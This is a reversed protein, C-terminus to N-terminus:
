NVRNDLIEYGLDPKDTIIGDIRMKLLTRIHEPENVTWTIIKRGKRHQDVVLNRSVLSYHPHYVDYPTIWQLLGRMLASQKRSILLATPIRKTIGNARILTLPNFSSLLVQNEMGREEVERIVKKALDDTISAYNTLEINFLLCAGLNELVENLTPIHEVTYKGNLYGGADLKKIEELSWESLRGSGNTTRDLTADHLVVVEGDKTLKVDFEIANAGMEYAMKFASMTNEPAYASAGRHGIILPAKVNWSSNFDM